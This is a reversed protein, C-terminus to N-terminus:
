YFIVSSFNFTHKWSLLIFSSFLVLSTFCFSQSFIYSPPKNGEPDNHDFGQVTGGLRVIFRLGGAPLEMQITVPLCIGCIWVQVWRNEQCVRGKGLMHDRLDVVIHRFMLWSWEPSSLVSYHLLCHHSQLDRCKSNIQIKRLKCGNIKWKFFKM